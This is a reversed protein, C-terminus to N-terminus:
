NRSMLVRELWTLTKKELREARAAPDTIKEDDLTRAIWPYLPDSACGHGFAYMLTVLLVTGRIAFGHTRGAAAGEDILKTLEDEGVYAVKEPFNRRMERLMGPVLASLPFNIPAKATELLDSLARKVNAAEPGCAKIQFDLVAQDLLEAREMQDGSSKLIKSFRPYQPDTDFDSGFLFMMEIYLRIPGRFTFGYSGARKIAQRVAVHTQEEGIVECLKPSFERSHVVMEDEFRLMAAEEFVKMQEPRIALM